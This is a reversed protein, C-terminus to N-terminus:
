GSASSSRPVKNFAKIAREGSIRPTPSAPSRLPTTCLSSTSVEPASSNAVRSSRQPLEALGEAAVPHVLAVPGDHDALEPSVLVQHQVQTHSAVPRGPDADAGGACGAGSPRRQVPAGDLAAAARRQDLHFRDGAKQVLDADSEGVQTM